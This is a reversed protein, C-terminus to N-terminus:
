CPKLRDFDTDSLSKEGSVRWSSSNLEAPDFGTAPQNPEGVLSVSALYHTGPQPPVSLSVPQDFGPPAVGLIFSETSSGTTSTVQWLLTLDADDRHLEVASVKAFNDCRKLRMVIQGNVAKLGLEGRAGPDSFPLCSLLIVGACIPATALKRIVNSTM